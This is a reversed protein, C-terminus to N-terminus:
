EADISALRDGGALELAVRQVVPRAEDPTMGPRLRPDYLMKLLMEDHTTLLAFEDDDNFISPRAGPSDNALGLGQALEEHICSKMLLDPHEARILAIAQGYAYGGPQDSFAVVLCHIERPLSTLAALSASDIGPVISRVRPAIQGRDDEGMFLVHFNPNSSSMTIPHSTVRALRDVYRSLTGSERARQDRDVSPGFEAQVRVPQTWKKIRGLGGSSPRFGAGREYEEALAIREFNRVLQTETFPTDVGGGDTRLLGQGVLDAELRAYYTALDRSRASPERTTPPRTDPTAAPRDPRVQPKSSTDLGESPGFDCAALAAFAMAAGFAQFRSPRHM